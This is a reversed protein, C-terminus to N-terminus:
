FKRTTGRFLATMVIRLSVSKVILRLCSLRTKARRFHFRTSNAKTTTRLMLRLLLRATNVTLSQLGRCHGPVHRVYIGPAIRDEGDNLDVRDHFVMGVTDTVDSLVFSHSLVKHSTARGTVYSM